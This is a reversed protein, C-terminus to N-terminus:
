KSEGACPPLSLQQLTYLAILMAITIQPNITSTLAGAVTTPKTEQIRTELMVSGLNMMQM